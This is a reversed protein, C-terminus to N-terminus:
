RLGFLVVCTTRMVDRSVCNSKSSRVSLFTGMWNCLARVVYEEKGELDIGTYNLM